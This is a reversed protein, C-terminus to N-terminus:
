KGHRKAEVLRMLEDLEADSLHDLSEALPQVVAGGFGKLLSTFINRAAEMQFAEKELRATYLFANGQKTKALVGKEALRTMVTMVTTYALDREQELARHVQRVTLPGKSWIIEMVRAELEGLVQPQGKKGTRFRVM